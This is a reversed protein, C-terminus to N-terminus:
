SASCLARKFNKQYSTASLGVYEDYKKFNKEQDQTCAPISEALYRYSESDNCILKGM